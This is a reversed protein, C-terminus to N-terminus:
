AVCVARERHRPIFGARRTRFEENAHAVLGFQIKAALAVGIACAEGGKAFHECPQIHPPFNM